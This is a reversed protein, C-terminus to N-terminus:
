MAYPFICCFLIDDCVHPLNLQLTNKIEKIHRTQLNEYIEPLRKKLWNRYSSDTDYGKYYICHYVFDQTSQKVGGNHDLRLFNLSNQDCFMNWLILDNTFDQTLLLGGTQEIILNHSFPCNYLMPNEFFYEVKFFQKLTWLSNERVALECIEKQSMICTDILEQCIEIFNQTELIKYNEYMKLEVFVKALCKNNVRKMFNYVQDKDLRDAISSLVKASKSQLCQTYLLNYDVPVVSCVAKVFEPSDCERCITLTKNIEEMTPQKGYIIRLGYKNIIWALSKSSTARRAHLYSDTLSSNFSNLIRKVNLAQTHLKASLYMGFDDGLIDFAANFYDSFWDSYSSQKYLITNILSKNREKLARTLDLETYFTKNKGESDIRSFHKKMKKVFNEYDQAKLKPYKKDSCIIPLMPRMPSQYNITQAMEPM